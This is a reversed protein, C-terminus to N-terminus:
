GRSAVPERSRPRDRHALAGFVLALALAAAAIAWELAGSGRDPDVRFVLEIWDKWVLTLLTFVGSAGALATETLFRRRTPATRM